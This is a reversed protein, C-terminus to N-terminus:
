SFVLLAVIDKPLIFALSAIFIIAPIILFTTRHNLVWRLINEYYHQLGKVLPNEEPPRLRGKLFYLALVPTLTLAVVVSALLVFTKTYALPKFLKGEQSELAFVALFSVVTTLVATMVASGVESAAGFVVELRTKLGKKIDEAHIILHRYANETMVIGMDVLTGIAIAIGSLSM